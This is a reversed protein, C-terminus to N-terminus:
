NLCIINKRKSTSITPVSARGVKAKMQFLIKKEERSNRSNRYRGKPFTKHNQLADVEIVELTKLLLYALCDIQMFIQIQCYFSLNFSLLFEGPLCVIELFQSLFSYCNWVLPGRFFMDDEILITFMLLDIFYTQLSPTIVGAHLSVQM